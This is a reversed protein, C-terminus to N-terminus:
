HKDPSYSRFNWLKSYHRLGLVQRRVVVPMVVMDLVAGTPDRWDEACNASHSCALLLGLRCGTWFQVFGIRSPLQPVEVTEQVTEIQHMGLGVIFQLQPIEVTKLVTVWDNDFIQEDFRQLVRGPLLGNALIFQM